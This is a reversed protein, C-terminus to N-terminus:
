NLIFTQEESSYITKYTFELTIKRSYNDKEVTMSTIETIYDGYYALIKQRYHNEIQTETTNNDFVYTFDIGQNQDYELEGAFVIEGNGNKHCARINLFTYLQSLIAESDSVIAFDNDQIFLDGENFAIDKM